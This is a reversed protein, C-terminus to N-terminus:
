RVELMNDDTKVLSAYLGGNGDPSRAIKHKDSLMLKGEFTFCPLTNQEFIIVNKRSLGFYSHKKFFEATTDKTYESTM